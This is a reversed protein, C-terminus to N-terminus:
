HEAEERGAGIFPGPDLVPGTGPLASSASAALLSPSPAYARVLEITADFRRALALAHPLIAEALSSGDVAVLIRQYATDGHRGNSRRPQTSM